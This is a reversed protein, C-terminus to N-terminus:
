VDGITREKVKDHIYHIDNWFGDNPEAHEKCFEGLISNFLQMGGRMGAVVEVLRDRTNGNERLWLNLLIAKVVEVFPAKDGWGVAIGANVVAGRIFKYQADLRKDIEDFRKQNGQAKSLIVKLLVGASACLEVATIVINQLDLEM